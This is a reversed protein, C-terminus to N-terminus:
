QEALFSELAQNFAQPKELFLAHGAGAVVELKSRAIKSQMYEGMLRNDAAVVILTPCPVRALMPRRDGLSLDALLSVATGTPTKLSADIIEKYLIEPQRTKFMGRVFQDVFKARDDQIRLIRERSQQPTRGFAYDEDKIGTPAGDVLVLREPQLTEPSAVYELLVTVGASWGVLIPHEINLGKLLAHLDAAQQQYTNGGDTKTTLGQSRPDIAVIHFGRSAFYPIQEKWVEAPMTWGPVFVLHREGTGAEVYHVKIDGISLNADKWPKKEAAAGLVAAILLCAIAIRM